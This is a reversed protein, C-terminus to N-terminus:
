SGSAAQSGCMKQYERLAERVAEVPGVGRRRMEEATRAAPAPVPAPAGAPAAAPAGPGSRRKDFPASEAGRDQASVKARDAERAKLEKEAVDVSWGCAKARELVRARVEAAKKDAAKEWMAKLHWEESGEWAKKFKQERKTVIRPTERRPNEKLWAATEEVTQDRIPVIGYVLRCDMAAAAQELDGLSVWGKEEGKELRYVFTRDVALRHAVETAPIGLAQRIERLWAKRAFQRRAARRLPELERELKEQLKKRDDNKMVSERETEPKDDGVGAQWGRSRSAMQAEPKVDRSPSMMGMEPSTMRFWTFSGSNGDGQLESSDLFVM